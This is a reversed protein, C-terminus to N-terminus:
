SIPLGTCCMAAASTITQEGSLSSLGVKSEVVKALKIKKSYSFPSFPYSWIMYKLDSLQAEFHVFIKKM